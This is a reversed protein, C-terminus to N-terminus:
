RNWYNFQSILKLRNINAQRLANQATMYNNIAIVFDAVKVDGTHLLKTDVEILGRTFKIQVAIQQYLEETASIQQSLMNIQQNQQDLFFNRYVSSTQAQLNLRDQQMKKQHGDYIPILVTFGLSAGFNKYPQLVLSSNYGGNVYVNAKPKYNLDIAKKDNVAKLSDIEFRRSFFGGSSDGEAVTKNMVPESLVVHATDKIGSLYNLRAQDTEFQLEAQRYQLQQQKFTVLFTLYETQKYVNSRTLKKLLAEEINLLNYIDLNFKVQQQSDYAAIYQETIAKQLDLRSLGLAYNISDRQLELGRAQNDKLGKGTLAYNLTLLADLSQGNTMVEDFGYGNIRPAYLGTTSASVQPGRGARARMSDIKSMMLQNSFDKILPSSRVAQHIFYDLDKKVKGIEQAQTSQSLRCLCILIVLIQKKFHEM